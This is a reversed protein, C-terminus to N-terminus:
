DPLLLRRSGGWYYCKVELDVGCEQFPVEKPSEM